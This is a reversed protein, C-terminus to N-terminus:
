DLGAKFLGSRVEVMDSTAGGSGTGSSGSPGAGSTVACCSRFICILSNLAQNRVCVFL